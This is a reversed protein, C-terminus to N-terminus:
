QCAILRRDNCFELCMRQDQDNNAENDRQPHLANIQDDVDRRGYNFTQCQILLSNQDFRQRTTISIQDFIERSPHFISITSEIDPLHEKQQSHFISSM